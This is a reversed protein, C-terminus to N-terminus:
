LGVLNIARFVEVTDGGCANKHILKSLAACDSTRSAEEAM